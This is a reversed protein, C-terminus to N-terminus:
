PRIFHLRIGMKMSWDALVRGSLEPGNDMVIVEPRGRLHVLRDLVRVVETGTLWTGVEISL